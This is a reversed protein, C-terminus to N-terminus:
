EEHGCIECNIAGYPGSGKNRRRHDEEISDSGAINTPRHCLNM